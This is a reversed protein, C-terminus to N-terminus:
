KDLVERISTAIQSRSIPKYLLTKIGVAKVKEPTISDDYGACLIIRASPNIELIQKALNYGTLHPMTQDTIVLDFSDPSEKYANLAELSGNFATVNYGLTEMVKEGLDLLTKEDDVFLIRERGTPVILSTAEKKDPESVVRPFLVTFTTGKGPTSEVAIDGGCDHVIGHVVALGMGTGKDKDKTTFFPEFIRHIIGPDIGIGTDSIKLEMFTGPIIHHYRKTSDEETIIISSLSIELLGGSGDMAHAANTCLNMVVQHLQTPDANVMGDNDDIKQRIEITSPLTSRLMKAEEKIISSLQIPRRKEQSKRSFTLIQRVLNKARLAAKLVQELHDYTPSGHESDGEALEAYGIISGLINNFDHAIGGALTGIAEMKQTQKLTEEMRKRETIDYHLGLVGSVDGNRDKLPVISTIISKEKGDATTMTDEIDYM